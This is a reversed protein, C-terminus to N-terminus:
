MQAPLVFRQKGRVTTGNTEWSKNFTTFRNFLVHCKKVTTFISSAFVLHEQAYWHVMRWVNRWVQHPKTKTRRQGISFLTFNTSHSATACLSYPLRLTALTYAHPPACARPNKNVTRTCVVALDLTCTVRDLNTHGEPFRQQSLVNSLKCLICTFAHTLGQV